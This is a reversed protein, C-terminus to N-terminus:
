LGRGSADAYDPRGQPLRRQGLSAYAKVAHFPICKGQRPMEMLAARPAPSKACKGCRDGTPSQNSQGMGFYCFFLKVSIDHMGNSVSPRHGDRCRDSMPMPGQKYAGKHLPPEARLATPSQVPLGLSVIGGDRKAHWRGKCLPPKIGGDRKAHWRGECLLFLGGM